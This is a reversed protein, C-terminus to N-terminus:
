IIYERQTKPTFGISGDYAYEEIYYFGTDRLEKVIEYFQYVEGRRRVQGNHVTVSISNESLGKRIKLLKGRRKKWDKEELAAKFEEFVDRSENDRIVFITKKIGHDGRLEKRIDLDSFKLNCLSKLFGFSFNDSKREDIKKYYDNNLYYFDDEEVHDKGKLIEGTVELPISDYIFKSFERKNENITRYIYVCGKKKESNRNCRGCVQNISDQPAFDRFIIDVDIDVGAEICQTTVIVKNKIKDDKILKIREIRDKPTINSSLYIIKRGLNKDLFDFMEISSEITNLVVMADKEHNDEIYKLVRNEFENFSVTDEVLPSLKVRKLEDFDRFYHEVNSVLEYIEGKDGKFILPKTATMMVVYTNGVHTLVQFFKKILVWLKYPISQIEDFILISNFLNHFRMIFSRNRSFASYLVQDFTTLIIESNWINLMFESKNTDLEENSPTRFKIDSLSHQKLLVKSGYKSIEDDLVKNFVSDTQEIISLFPLSNVIKPSFDFKNKLENKLKLAFSLSTLTKGTGTPLTISLIKRDQNPDIIKEVKSVVDRYSEERIKNIGDAVIRFKKRKYEDVIAGSLNIRKDTYEEKDLILRAKDAEMLLSYYLLFLIVQEIQLEEPLEENYDDFDNYDDEIKELVEKLNKIRNEFRNFEINLNGNQFFYTFVEDCIKDIQKQFIHRDIDSFSVSSGIDQLPSHHREIAFFSALRLFRKWGDGINIKDLYDKMVIHGWIASIKSHNTKETRKGHELRDIQFYETSKGFDHCIGIIYGIDCIIETDISFNLKKSHLLRSIITGACNLHESLLLKEGNEFKHSYLPM